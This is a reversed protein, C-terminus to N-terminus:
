SLILRILKQYFDDPIYRTDEKGTFTFYFKMWNKAQGGYLKYSKKLVERSPSKLNTKVVPYNLANRSKYHAKLKYRWSQITGLTKLFLKDIKM